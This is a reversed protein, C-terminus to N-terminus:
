SSDFDQLNKCHIQIVFSRNEIAYNAIGQDKMIEHIEDKTKGSVNIPPIRIKREKAPVKSLIIEGAENTLIGFKNATPILKVQVENGDDDQVSKNVPKSAHNNTPKAKKSAQVHEASNSRKLYPKPPPYVDSDPEMSVTRKFKANKKRTKAM